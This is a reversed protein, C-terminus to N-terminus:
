LKARPQLFIERSDKAGKTPNRRIPFKNTRITSTKYQKEMNGCFRAEVNLKITEKSVHRRKKKYIRYRIKHSCWWAFHPKTKSTKSLEKKQMRQVKTAQSKQSKKKIEWLRQYCCILFNCKKTRTSKSRTYTSDRTFQFLLSPIRDACLIFCDCVCIIRLSPQDRDAIAWFHMYFTFRIWKGIVVSYYWKSNKTLRTIKKM